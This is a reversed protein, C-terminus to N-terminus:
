LREGGGVEINQGTIHASEKQLLFLIVRSVEELSCSRKMPLTSLDSPLDISNELHGPSVMNVTIKNPALEKALSKTLMHLSLKTMNYLTAYTNARIINAGVMGLNIVQKLTPMLAQVLALPANVNVQFLDLSSAPATKTAPAILYNGVNNILTETEKFRAAYEQLFLDVGELTSFDGYISQGGIEKALAEAEKKSSRYHIVVKRGEKALSKAIHAGLRLAGGTVLTYSM